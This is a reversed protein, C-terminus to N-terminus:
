ILSKVTGVKMVEQAAIGGIVAQMPCVDGTAQYALQRIVDEDLEEVKAGSSSNIEKAMALMADADEQLGSFSAGVCKTLSQNSQIQKVVVCM